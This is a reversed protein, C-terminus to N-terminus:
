RRRCLNLISYLHAIELLDKRFASNAGMNIIENLCARRRLKQRITAAFHISELFLGMDKKHIAITALAQAIEAHLVSRKSIDTIEGILDRANNLISINDSIVTWRTLRPLCEIISDSRYKRFTIKNLVSLGQEIYMPDSESIGM